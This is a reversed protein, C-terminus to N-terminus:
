KKMKATAVVYQLGSWVTLFLAIAILVWRVVALGTVDFLANSVGWVSDWPFVLFVILFMQSVTKAKGGSNAAVVIGRKLLRSRMWTIGLERAAVVVTFWWPVLGAISLVVFAGLTLAKDAIPDWIKGWDTVIGRERAIKGDYLDTFAAVVFVVLAAWMAGVSGNLVLIIFIPVLVLRVMTLVNPLNWINEGEHVRSVNDDMQARDM